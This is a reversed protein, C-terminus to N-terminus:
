IKGHWAVPPEDLITIPFIALVWQSHAHGDVLHRDQELVLVPELLSREVEAGTCLPAWWRRRPRRGASARATDGTEASLQTLEQMGFCPAIAGKFSLEVPSFRDLEPM